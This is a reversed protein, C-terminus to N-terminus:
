VGTRVCSGMEYDITGMRIIIEVFSALQLPNEFSLKTKFLPLDQKSHFFVTNYEADWIPIYISISKMDSKHIDWVHEEEYSCSDSM